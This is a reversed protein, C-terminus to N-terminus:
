LARLVSVVKGLITAQDAPIPEYAPNHPLLWIHGERRALTKVTAEGDIMAAVIEGLEAVNQKRVVVWDGDCIAADIMSDGQVKLMFLEGKGTLQIPLSFVDSQYQEATIPSGAAITGVLPVEVQNHRDPSIGLPVANTNPTKVATKDPTRLPNVVVELARSRGQSRRLFGRNVLLDLHHKVTSPSSLGVQDAIERVSPPYGNYTIGRCIVELIERSRPKLSEINPTM